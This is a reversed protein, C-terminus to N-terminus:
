MDLSILYREGTIANKSITIQRRAMSATIFSRDFTSFKGANAKPNAMPIYIPRSTVSSFSEIPITIRCMMVASHDLSSIMEKM